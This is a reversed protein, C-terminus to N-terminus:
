NRGIKRRANQENTVEPKIRFELWDFKRSNRQMAQTAADKDYYSNWKEWDRSYLCAFIDDEDGIYKYEVIVIKKKKM